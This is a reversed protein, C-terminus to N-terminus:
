ATATPASAKSDWTLNGPCTLTGPTRSMAPLKAMLNGLVM